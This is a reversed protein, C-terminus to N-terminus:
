SNCPNISLSTISDLLRPVDPQATAKQKQVPPAKTEIGRRAEDRGGTEIATDTVEKLKYTHCRCQNLGLLTPIKVRGIFISHKFNMKPHM